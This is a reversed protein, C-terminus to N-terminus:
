LTSAMNSLGKIIFLIFINVGKLEIILVQKIVKEKGVKEGIKAGALGRFGEFDVGGWGVGGIGEITAGVKDGSSSLIGQM